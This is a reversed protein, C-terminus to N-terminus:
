LWTWKTRRERFNRAANRHWRIWNWIYRQTKGTTTM